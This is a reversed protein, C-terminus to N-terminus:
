KEKWGKVKGDVIYFTVLDDPEETNWNLFTIWEENGEKRYGKQMLETYGAKALYEKPMGVYVVGLETLINPKAQTPADAEKESVETSVGFTVEQQALATLPILYILITLLLPKM